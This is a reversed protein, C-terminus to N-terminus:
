RSRVPLKQLDAATEIQRVQSSDPSLKVGGFVQARVKGNSRTVKIGPTTKEFPVVQVQYDRMWFPMPTGQDRLKEAIATMLAIRRLETFVPVPKSIGSEIPPTLFQEKAISEYSNTFWSVFKSAGASSKGKLNNVLKGNEM